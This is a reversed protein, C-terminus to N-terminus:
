NRLAFDTITHTLIEINTELTSLKIFEDPQHGTYEEDPMKPGFVVANPLRRAYTGGGMSQATLSDGTLRNYISM